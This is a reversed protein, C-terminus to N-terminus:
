FVCPDFVFPNQEVVLNIAKFAPHAPNLFLNNEAPEVFSPVWLGLSAQSRLWKMGIQQTAGINSRWDEPFGLDQIKMLKARAPISLRLLVLMGARPMVGNLHVRKELQCLSRSSKCIVM